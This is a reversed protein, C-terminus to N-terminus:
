EKLYKCRKEVFKILQNALTETFTIDCLLIAFTWLTLTDDNIKSYFSIWDPSQAFLLSLFLILVCITYTPLFWKYYRDIQISILHNEMLIQSSQEAQEEYEKRNKEAIGEKDRGRFIAWHNQYATEERYDAHAKNIKELLIEQAKERIKNFFDM